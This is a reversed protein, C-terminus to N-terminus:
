ATTGFEISTLADLVLDIGESTVILKIPKVNGLGYSNKHLWLSFDIETGFIEIGKNYLEELKDNM